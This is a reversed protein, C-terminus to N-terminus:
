GAGITSRSSPRARKSCARPAQGRLGPSPARLWLAGAPTACTVRMPGRSPPMRPTPRRTALRGGAQGPWAAGGNEGRGFARPRERGPALPHARRATRDGALAGHGRDPVHRRRHRRQQTGCCITWSTAGPHGGRGSPPARPWQAPRRAIGAVSRDRREILGDTYMLLTDGIELQLTQGGRVAGSRPASCSAAPCPCRARKATASWSPRCIAPAPGACTRAPAPDYIGCVVTATCTTPIHHTVTNLWNLLQAPGAGTAALGRLANRLAVMSPPPTSATAPSTARRVLLISARQAPRRRRVLRRRGPAGERGPRYRVARDAPGCADIPKARRCSRASSGCPSATARRSRASPTSWGTAPPPWRSRPGTSPPSTRAPAASARDRRRRRPGTRRRHPHLAPRRRRAHLRFATSAPVSTTCCRACSGPSRRRRRRPARPRGSRPDPGAARHAAAAFLDFLEANWTVEGTLLNEEFGGMRGLRQAHQLLRALRAEEDEPRWTLVLVSGM